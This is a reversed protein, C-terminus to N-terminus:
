SIPYFGPPVIVMGDIGFNTDLTGDNEQYRIIGYNLDSQGAVLLGPAGMISGHTDLSTGPQFAIAYAFDGQGDPNLQTTAIGDTGFTTDLSGDTNYRITAFAGNTNGTSIGTPVIKGDDQVLVNQAFSYNDVLTQVIGTVNFSTDLLGNTTYRALVFASYGDFQGTGAAVIKGDSQLAISYAISLNSQDIATTTIGNSGFSNDLSGTPTYRAVLFKAPGSAQAFGGIVLSQDPQIILSKAVSMHATQTIVLGNTGFTNDLSGDTNFRALLIKGSGNTVISGAAVIRGDAQIQVSNFSSGAANAIYPMTIIGNDGFTIDLTGDNNYRAIAALPSYTIIQGAAVIKNDAQLAISAFYTNSGILLSAIGNNAFSTDFAGLPLHRALIATSLGTTLDQSYGAILCNLDKDVVISNASFQAAYSTITLSIIILGILASSKNVFIKM